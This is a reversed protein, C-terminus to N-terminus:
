PQSKVLEIKGDGSTKLAYKTERNSLTFEFPTSLGTPQFMIIPETTKPMELKVSTRELTLRYNNDWDGGARQTWESNEFSYLAYGDRSFGAATVFGSILGDQVLANLEGTLRAAQEDLASKPQPISLVVVASMVSILGLVCLVEVLTFGAEKTIRRGV